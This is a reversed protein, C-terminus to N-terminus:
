DEEWRDASLEVLQGLAQKIAHDSGGKLTTWLQGSPSVSPAAVIRGRRTCFVGVAAPGRLVRDEDFNLAYCVIEAFALRAGLASGIIMATRAPAGLAAFRDALRVAEHTGTLAESVSQLPAGFAAIDAPPGAPLHQLLVKAAGALVPRGDAVHLSVVNAVRRAWVWLKRQRVVTVRVTGEPTVLRMALERDPRQLARLPGILEGAVSGNRLLGGEALAATAATVAASRASATGHRPRMGLVVPLAQVQARSALVMLQDDTLEFHAALSVTM